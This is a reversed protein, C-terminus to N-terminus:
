GVGRGSCRYSCGCLLAAVTAGRLGSRGRGLGVRLSRGATIPTPSAIPHLFELLRLRGRSSPLRDAPALTRGKPGPQDGSGATCGPTGEGIGNGRDALECKQATTLGWIGLEAAKARRQAAAFQAAHATNPPYPYAQAYGKAVLAENFMKGDLYVYALLRGYQDMREEDFDLRVRRLSLERTTFESAQPGYPEVGEAPDVTEPTDVGILRVDKLGNVAPSVEITDGDIVNSVTVTARAPRVTNTPPAVQKSKPRQAPKPNPKPNPEPKTAETPKRTPGGRPSRLRQSRQKPRARRLTAGPKTGQPDKPKKTEKHSDSPASPREASCGGSVLMVVCALALLAKMGTTPGGLWAGIRAMEKRGSAKFNSVELKIGGCFERLPSDWGQLAVEFPRPHNSPKDM